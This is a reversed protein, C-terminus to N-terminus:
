VATLIFLSKKSNIYSNPQYESVVDGSIPNITHLCVHEKYPNAIHIQTYTDSRHIFEGRYIGYSFCRYVNDNSRYYIDAGGSSGQKETVVFLIPINTSGLNWTETGTDEHSFLHVPEGSYSFHFVSFLSRINDSMQQFTADSATQIGKDTIASAVLAKGNSVSTFLSDVSSQKALEVSGSGITAFAKNPSSIFIGQTLSM